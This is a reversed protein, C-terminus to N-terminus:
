ARGSCTPPFIPAYSRPRSWTRRTPLCPRIVVQAVAQARQARILHFGVGRWTTQGAVVVKREQAPVKAQFAAALGMAAVSAQAVERDACDATSAAPPRFLWLDPEAMAQ